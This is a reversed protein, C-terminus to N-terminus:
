LSDNEVLDHSDPGRVLAVWNPRTIKDWYLMQLLNDRSVYAHRGSEPIGSKRKPILLCMVEFQEFKSKPGFLKFRHVLILAAYMHTEHNRVERYPPGPNSDWIASM